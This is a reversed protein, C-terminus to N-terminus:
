FSVLNLKNYRRYPYRRIKFGKEAEAVASYVKRRQAPCWRYKAPHSNRQASGWMRIIYDLGLRERLVSCAFRDTVKVGCMWRIIRIEVWQRTLESDKKVPWTESGHLMCTCVCSTYFLFEDPSSIAFTFKQVVVVYMSLGAGVGM